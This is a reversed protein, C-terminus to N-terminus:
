GLVVRGQGADPLRSLGELLVQQDLRLQLRTGGMMSLLDIIRPFPLSQMLFLPPM